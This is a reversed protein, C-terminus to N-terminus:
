TIKTQTSLKIMHIVTPEVDKHNDNSLNQKAGMIIRYLEDKSTKNKM